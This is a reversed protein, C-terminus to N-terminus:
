THPADPERYGPRLRPEWWIAGTWFLLGYFGFMVPLFVVWGPERYTLAAILGIVAAMLIASLPGAWGARAAVWGLGLAFPLAFIALFTGFVMLFGPAGIGAALNTSVGNQGLWISGGYMFAGVAPTILLVVLCVGLAARWSFSALPTTRFLWM